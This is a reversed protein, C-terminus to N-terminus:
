GGGEERQKDIQHLQDLATNFDDAWIAIVDALEADTISSGAPDTRTDHRWQRAARTLRAMWRGAWIVASAAAVLAALAIVYGGVTLVAFVIRTATM